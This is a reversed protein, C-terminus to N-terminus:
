ASHSDGKSEAALTTLIRVAGAKSLGENSDPRRSLMVCSPCGLDCPCTAVVELALAAIEDFREFVPESLRLGGGFSDYIHICDGQRTAELDSPNCAVVAPAVSLLVHELAKLAEDREEEDAFEAARVELTVGDTVFSMPAWTQEPEHSTESGSFYQRWYAVLYREISLQGFGLRGVSTTTPSRHDQLISVTDRVVGRTQYDIDMPGDCIISREDHLIEAVQYLSGDPGSWVAPAFADRPGAAADIVGIPTRERGDRRFVTYSASISASRLADPWVGPEDLSFYDEGRITMSPETPRGELWRGVTEAGFYQADGAAIGGLEVHAPALGFRDALSPAEPNVVVDEPAADLLMQLASPDRAIFQQLPDDGVVLVALGPGRRGVRGIRQRFSSLQGPYGVLVALSLEPIDIGLELANTSVVALTTGDRLEGETQQRDDSLFTAAYPKVTAALEAGAIRTVERQVRKHLQFVSNRSRSFVITRVPPRSRATLARTVLDIAITQPAIRGLSSQEVVAAEGAADDSDRSEDTGASSDDTSESERTRYPPNCVLVLRESRASGDDDILSFPTAGTLAECLEVPNGITASAALFQPTAGYIAAMRRLRRLLLAVNSGFVGQYVHLEDLVVTELGKLFRAWTTGDRYARRASQLVTAHVSDPTTILVQAHRRIDRRAGDPTSGDLRAIRIPESEPTLKLDFATDSVWTSTGYRSLTDMQDNALARLPYILLATAAPNTAVSHLVPVVLGISKGSGAATAQVVNEGALAADIAQAQHTYFTSRNAHNLAAVVEPHLRQELSQFRAASGPISLQMWTADPRVRMMENALRELNIDEPAVFAVRRDDLGFASPDAPVPEECTACYFGEPRADPRDWPGVDFGKTSNQATRADGRTSVQVFDTLNRCDFCAIM